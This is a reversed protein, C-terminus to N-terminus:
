KLILFEELNSFENKKSKNNGHKSWGKKYVKGKQLTFELSITFLVFINFCLTAKFSNTM